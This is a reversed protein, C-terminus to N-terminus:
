VRTYWVMGINFKLIHRHLCMVELLLLIHHLSVAGVTMEYQAADAILAVLAGTLTTHM